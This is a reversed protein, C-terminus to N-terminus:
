GLLCQFLLRRIQIEVKQLQIDSNVRHGFNGSKVRCCTKKESISSEGMADNRISM